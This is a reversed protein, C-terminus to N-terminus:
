VSVSFSMGLYVTSCYRRHLGLTCMVSIHRVILLMLMESSHPTLARHAHLLTLSPLASPDLLSPVFPASM